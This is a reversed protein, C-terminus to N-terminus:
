KLELITSGSVENVQGKGRNILVACTFVVKSKHKKEYFMILMTMIAVNEQM